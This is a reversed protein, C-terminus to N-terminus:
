EKPKVEEVLDSKSLLSKEDKLSTKEHIAQQSIVQESNHIDDQVKDDHDGGYLKTVTFLISIM